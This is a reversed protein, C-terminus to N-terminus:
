LLLIKSQLNQWKKTCQAQTIEKGVLVSVSLAVRAWAANRRKRGEKSNDKSLVSAKEKELEQLFLLETHPDM